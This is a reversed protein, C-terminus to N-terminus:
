RLSEPTEVGEEALKAERETLLAEVEAIIEDSIQWDAAPVSSEIQSPRRAGVIAATIEPRALVWAIALHSLPREERQAIQRLKEVFEVNVSASPEQFDSDRRRWDDDSMAALRKPGFGDTLIGSRLPSYAIVGIDNAECYALLEREAGRKLMSYEPQLSAVPHIPQIRKLQEVNFNSVGGYRVKGEKVLDAIVGWAEEIDEEPTPWHIQYLDITEVNLRRLSDEAERRVSDAKLRPTVDASRNNEDWVLGCKTAIIVKDRRDKIAKAIFEESRGLGYAAASDMWNIGLDLARHITDMSEQFDQPGWGWYWDGGGIAWTGLGVTTLHLDSFGLKRTQM